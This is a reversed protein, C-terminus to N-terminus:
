EDELEAEDDTPTPIDGDDETPDDEAPDDTPTATEDTPEDTGSEDDCSTVETSPSFVPDFAPNSRRAEIVERLWTLVLNRPCEDQLFDPPSGIEDFAAIAADWEGLCAHAASRYLPITDSGEQNAVSTSWDAANDKLESCSGSALLEYAMTTGPSVIDVPGGTPLAVQARDESLDDDADEGTNSDSETTSDSASTGDVSDEGCAALLVAFLVVILLRVAGRVGFLPSRVQRPAMVLAEGALNRACDRM